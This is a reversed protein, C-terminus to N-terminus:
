ARGAVAPSRNVCPRIANMAPCAIVGGMAGLAGEVSRLHHGDAHTSVAARMPRDPRDGVGGACEPKRGPGSPRTSLELLVMARSGPPVVRYIVGESERTPRNRCRRTPKLRVAGCIPLCRTLRWGSRWGVGGPQRPAWERGKHVQRPLPLIVGDQLSRSRM